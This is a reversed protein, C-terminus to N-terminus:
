VKTRRKSGKHCEALSAKELLSFTTELTRSFVAWERPSKSLPVTSMLESIAADLVQAARYGGDTQQLLRALHDVQSKHIRM